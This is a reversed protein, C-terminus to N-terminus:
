VVIAVVMAVLVMMPYRLASSIREKMDKEFELHGYLRMFTEDLMGTMEGVQVMSVYLASFVKPHLRMAYSLERGSDLSERLGQLTAAFAPNEASEQLGALARMIPVGARLLTHMQRSFLKLELTGVKKEHLSQWLSAGSVAVASEKGSIKIETPTIGKKILQDAIAASDEGELTGQELDGSANRGRYAFAAM